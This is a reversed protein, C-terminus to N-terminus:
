SIINLIDRKGLSESLILQNEVVLLSPYSKPHLMEALEAKDSTTIAYVNDKDIAFKIVHPTLSKCPGCGTLYHYIYLKKGSALDADFKAQDFKNIM